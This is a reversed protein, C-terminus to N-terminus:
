ISGMKGCYEWLSGSFYKGTETCDKETDYLFLIYCRSSATDRRYDGSGALKEKDSSEGEREFTKPLHIRVLTGEDPESIIELGYPEGFYLRIRQHVNM